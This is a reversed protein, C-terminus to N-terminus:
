GQSDLMKGPPAPETFIGLHSELLREPEDTLRRIENMMSNIEDADPLDRGHLAREGPADDKPAAYQEPSKAGSLAPTVAIDENEIYESLAHSWAVDNVSRRKRGKEWVKNLANAANVAAILDDAQTQNSGSM